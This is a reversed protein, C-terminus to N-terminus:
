EAAIAELPRTRAARHGPWLAALVGVAAAVVLFLLAQVWPVVTVTLGDDVLGRAFLYGFGVGLALGVLAGYVSILVSEVYLARRVQSRLMGVARLMGIERRREVVSLGLTNVIGLVSIVVALALLGYLVGLLIDVQQMLGATFGERDDVTAIRFPAVAAELDDQLATGANGTDVVFTQLMQQNQEAVLTDLTTGDVLWPAFYESEYVGSLTLAISGRGPSDLIVTDGVQWGYRDASDQTALITTPTLSGTGDVVDLDVVRNLDGTLALGYSAEDGVMAPALTISATDVGPVDAVAEGAANPIPQGEAGNVVYDWKMGANTIDTLSGKASAGIVAFATVLALGLALSFATAATRRPNRSANGQAMRGISGFPRTLAVGVVRFVGPAVVPSLVVVTVAVGLFGLGLWLPSDDLVGMVTLAAGALLTMGGIALRTAHNTSPTAFEGRMAEVPAVRGARRAPLMAALMTIAVGVGLTVAVTRVDLQMGSVPIGSGVASLLRTLGFALGLGSLVGLASGLVGVVLAEAAVSRTVQGRSAGVARLLALERSRQAVVMSFTNAIIFSGVVLAIVGFASLFATVFSLGQQFMSKSEDRLETGTRARLGDPLVAAVRDTLVQESVGEEGAVVITAAHAGDTLLETAQEPTFGVGIYGGVGASPTDYLGVVEVDRLGGGLLVVETPDGVALGAKDAASVNLVVEDDVRPARGATIEGADSVAGPGNVFAFGESPAAGSDVAKGDAGVLTVPGSVGAEVARVGDLSSITDVLELPVGPSLETSPLVQTDVGDSGVRVIDDFSRGLMDTFIFSAAIFATGLVVSLVTLGFRVKHARLGRMSVKRMASM